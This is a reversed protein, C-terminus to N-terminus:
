ENREKCRNPDNPRGKREDGAIKQNRKGDTRTTQDREKRQKERNPDNPRGKREDGVIKQIKEWTKGDRKGDTPIKKNRKWRMEPVLEKQKEEMEDSRSSIRERGDWRKRKTERGDRREKREDEVIKLSMLISRSLNSWNKWRMQFQDRKGRM